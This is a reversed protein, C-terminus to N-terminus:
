EITIPFVVEVDTTGGAVAPNDIAIGAAAKNPEHRLTVTLTGVGAAGTQLTTNLGVPLGNIDNGISTYSFALNAAAGPQYFVQHDTGENVIEGDISGSANAFSVQGQYSANAQLTGTTSFVPANGGDGDPDSFGLVVTEQMGTPTLTLTVATIVEEENEIMPDDPECASAFILLSISLLLAFKKTM